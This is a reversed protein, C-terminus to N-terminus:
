HVVLRILPTHNTRIYGLTVSMYAFPFTNNPQETRRQAEYILDIEKELNSKIVNLFGKWHKVHQKTNVNIAM